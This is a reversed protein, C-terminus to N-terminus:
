KYSNKGRKKKTPSLTVHISNIEFGLFERINSPIIKSKDTNIVFGLCEFLNYVIKINRTCENYSAGLCILDDLYIVIRIGQERLCEMVPKLLKTFVFPATNLGMALCNYEYLKDNFEFRLYKRDQSNIPVLYYANKLDLTCMFDNRSLLKSVTRIDDLKFHDTKIFKNLNKLNLIFRHSGDKKPISFISSVFQGPVARCQSIAGINLLNKIETEMILKESKNLKVYVPKYNQIPLVSLPIKYGKLWELITSDQTIREWCM